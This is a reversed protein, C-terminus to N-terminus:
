ARAKAVGFGRSRLVPEYGSTALEFAGCTRPRRIPPSLPIRVRPVMAPESTKSVLWNLWEQMEGHM